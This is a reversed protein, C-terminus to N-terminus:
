KRAGRPAEEFEIRRHASALLDLFDSLYAELKVRSSEVGAWDHCICAGQYAQMAAQFREYNRSMASAAHSMAIEFTDQKM